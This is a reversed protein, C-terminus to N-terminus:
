PFMRRWNPDQSKRRRLEEVHRRVVAKDQLRDQRCCAVEEIRRLLFKALMKPGHEPYETVLQTIIQALDRYYTPPAELFGDEQRKGERRALLSRQFLLAVEHAVQAAALLRASNPDSAEPIDFM